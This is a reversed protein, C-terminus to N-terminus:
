NIIWFSWSLKWKCTEGRCIEDFQKKFGRCNELNLESFEAHEESIKRKNKKCSWALWCIPNFNSLLCLQLYCCVNSWGLSRFNRCWFLIGIFLFNTDWIVLLCEVNHKFRQKTVWNRPNCLSSSRSSLWFSRIIVFNGM